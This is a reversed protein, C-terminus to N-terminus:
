NPRYSRNSYPFHPNLSVPEEEAAGFSLELIRLNSISESVKALNETARSSIYAGKALEYASIMTNSLQEGTEQLTKIRELADPAGKLLAVLIDTDLAAM